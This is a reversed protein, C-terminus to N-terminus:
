SLPIQMPKLLPFTPAVVLGIVYNAQKLFPIVQFRLHKLGAAGVIEELRVLTIGMIPWPFRIIM